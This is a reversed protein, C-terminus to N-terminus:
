DKNQYQELQNELEIIQQEQTEIQKKLEEVESSNQETLYSYRPEVIFKITVFYSAGFFLALILLWLFFRGIARGM